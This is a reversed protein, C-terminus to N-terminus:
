VEKIDTRWYSSPQVTYGKRTIEKGTVHWRGGVLAREVGKFADKITRDVKRYEDAADKLEARREIKALIDPDEELVLGARKIDPGCAARLSCGDCVRPDNLKAPEEGSELHWNLRNCKEILADRLAEDPEQLFSKVLGTSKDRLIWMLPQEPEIIDQREALLRYAEGQWPYARLYDFDASLMDEVSGIRSFVHTSMSKFECLIRDEEPTVLIWEMHASLKLEDDWLARQGQELRYGWDLLDRAAQQEHRRGQEFISELEFGHAQAENGRKISGWLFWDCSKGISSARLNRQPYVKIQKSLHERQVAGLDPIM